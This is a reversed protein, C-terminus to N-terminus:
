LQEKFKTEAQEPSLSSKQPQLRQFHHWPRKAVPASQLLKHAHASQEGCKSIYVIGHRKYQKDYMQSKPSVAVISGDIRNLMIEPQDEPARRVMYVESVGPGHLAAGKGVNRLWRKWDFVTCSAM